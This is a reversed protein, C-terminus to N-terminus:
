AICMGVTAMLIMNRRSGRLFELPKLLKSWRWSSEDAFLVPGALNPANFAPAQKQAPRSQEARLTAPWLFAAALLVVALWQRLCSQPSFRMATSGPALPSTPIIGVEGSEFGSTM